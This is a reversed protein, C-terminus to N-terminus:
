GRRRAPDHHNSMEQVVSWHGVSAALEDPYEVTWRWGPRLEFLDDVERSPRVKRPWLPAGPELSEELAYRVHTMFSLRAAITRDRRFTDITVREGLPTLVETSM